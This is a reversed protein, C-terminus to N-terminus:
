CRIYISTGGGCHHHHHFGGGWMPMGLGFPMFPSYGGYALGGLAFTNAFTNNYPFLSNMAYGWASGTHRYMADAMGIRATSGMVNLGFNQFAWPNGSKTDTILQNTTQLGANAISLGLLWDGMSDGM